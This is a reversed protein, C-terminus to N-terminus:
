FKLRAVTMAFRTGEPRTPVGSAAPLGEVAGLLVPGVPHPVFAVADLVSLAWVGAAVGITVSRLKRADDVRKPNLPSEDLRHHYRIDTIGVAAGAALGAALFFTGRDTHDDYFQGWGPLIMSRVGAMLGSKTKLAMWLTDATVGDLTISRRWREYGIEGGSVHYRGVLGRDLTVPTRGVVAQDGAVRFWAGDPRSMITLSGTTPSIQAFAPAACFALFAILLLALRAIM